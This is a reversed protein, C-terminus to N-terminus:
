EQDKAEGSGGSPGTLSRTGKSDDRELEIFEADVVNRYKELLLAIRENLQPDPLKITTTQEVQIKDKYEPFKAKLIVSLLQYNGHLAMQIAKEELARAAKPTAEEMQEAFAPNRDLEENLNTPSAGVADRATQILGTDVYARLLLERKADTWEIDRHVYVMRGSNKLRRELAYIETAFPISKAIQVNLEALTMGIQTAAKEIDGTDAYTDLVIQREKPEIAKLSLGERDEKAQLEKVSKRRELSQRSKVVNTLYLCAVCGGGATRRKSHHGQTCPEGTWYFKLGGSIADARSLTPMDRGSNIHQEYTLQSAESLEPTKKRRPM